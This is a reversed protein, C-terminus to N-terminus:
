GTDPEEGAEEPREARALAGPQLPRHIRLQTRVLLDGVALQDQTRDGTRPGVRRGWGSGPDLVEVAVTRVDSPMWPGVPDLVLFRDGACIAGDRWPRASAGTDSLMGTAMASTTKSCM